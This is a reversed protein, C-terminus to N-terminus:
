EEMLASLQRTEVVVEKVQMEAMGAQASQLTSGLRQIWRSCPYDRVGMGVTEELEEMGALHAPVGMRPIPM